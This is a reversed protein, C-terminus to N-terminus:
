LKLREKIGATEAETLEPLDDDTYRAKNYLALLQEHSKEEGAALKRHRKQVSAWAAVDAATEQPTLFTKVDYGEARRAQLWHRYLWRVRGRNDVAGEWRDRRSAPVLKSRLFQRLDSVTQEWNFLSTEEDQYGSAAPTERRLLSLLKDVVRRLLGGTNRYLWRLAFFLLALLAAAGLIYFGANLIASLLGPEAPEEMPFGQMEAPPAQEPPAEEPGSSLRSIWAFFARATGMLLQGLARGGGAALAAALIVFGAVFLRNHRQLGLPLRGAGGNLSSYRLHSSNSFLLALVLCLSGSWTLVPVEAQLAPFRAFVITAIWYMIIGSIYLWIRNKRSATTLGLFACVASGAVLPLGKLALAGALAGALVGLGLAALLQKWRRNCGARLLVGAAALVPLLVIWRLAAGDPQFYTQLVLWVPLLLLCEILASLWLIAFPKIKEPLGSKM